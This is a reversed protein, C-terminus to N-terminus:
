HKSIGNEFAFRVLDATHEAKLKRKLNRRHTQVTFESIFLKSGIEKNTYSQAILRLIETERETLSLKKQFDDQYFVPASQLSKKIKESVYKKGAVVQQLAELLEDRGHEKLLYGDAGAELVKQVLETSDYMTLILVKVSPFRKKIEMLVELGDKGPMNLDMLLLDPNKECVATLVERGSAAMGVIEFQQSSEIIERLGDLIIQHDDALIIRFLPM